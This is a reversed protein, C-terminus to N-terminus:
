SLSHEPFGLKGLVREWILDTIVRLNSGRERHVFPAETRFYHQHGGLTRVPLIHDPAYKARDWYPIGLRNRRIGGWSGLLTIYDACSGADDVCVVYHVRDAHERRIRIRPAGIQVVRWERIVGQRELMVAAQYAAIGGGSHGIFLVPRGASNAKVQSIIANAGVHAMCPLDFLDKRVLLLQYYFNRTCDGYPFLDRICPSRGHEAYRRELEKMCSSFITRRSGIGALMYIDWELAKGQM